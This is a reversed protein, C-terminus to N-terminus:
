ADLGRQRLEASLADAEADGAERSSREYAAILRDDPWAAEIAGIDARCSSIAESDDATPGPQEMELLTSRLNRLRAIERTDHDHM